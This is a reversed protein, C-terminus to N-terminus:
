MGIAAGGVGLGQRMHGRGWVGERRSQSHPPEGRYWGVKTCWTVAPSPVDEGGSALCPYCSGCALLLWPCGRGWNHPLPPCVFIL